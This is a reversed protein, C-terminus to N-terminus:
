FSRVQNWWLQLWSSDQFEEQRALLREQLQAAQVPFEKAALLLDEREQQTRCLPLATPLFREITDEISPIPLSPLRQQHRYLNRSPDELFAEDRYDGHSEIMPTKWPVLNSVTTSLVRTSSSNNISFTNSYSSTNLTGIPMRFRNESGVKPRRSTQLYPSKSLVERSCSRLHKM